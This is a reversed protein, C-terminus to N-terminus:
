IRSRIRHINDGDNDTTKKKRRRKERERSKEKRSLGMDLNAMYFLGTGDDKCIYENM